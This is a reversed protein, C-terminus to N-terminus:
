RGRVVSLQHLWIPAVGEISTSVLKTCVSIPLMLDTAAYGPLAVRSGRRRRPDCAGPSFNGTEVVGLTAWATVATGALRGNLTSLANEVGLVM